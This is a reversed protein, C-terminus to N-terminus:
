QQRARFTQRVQETSYTKGAAIDARAKAIDRLTELEEVISQYLGVDLLVAASRGRQTLVMPRGSVKLQELTAAANTRFETIPRIDTKLNLNTGDTM